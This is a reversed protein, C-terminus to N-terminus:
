RTLVHNRQLLNAAIQYAELHHTGRRRLVIDHYNYELIEYTSRKKDSKDNMKMDKYEYSIIYSLMTTIAKKYFIVENNYFFTELDENFPNQIIKNLM